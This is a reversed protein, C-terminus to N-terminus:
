RWMHFIVKQGSKVRVPQALPIFLPFWSYMNVTHSTPRTSLMVRDDDSNGHSHSTLHNDNNNNVNKNNDNNNNNINNKNYTEKITNNMHDRMTASNASSNNSSIGGRSNSNSNSSSSSRSNGVDRADHATDGSFLVAEFYGAMGHLVM